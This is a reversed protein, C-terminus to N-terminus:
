RAITHLSLQTQLNAVMQRMMTEDNTDVRVGDFLRRQDLDLVLETRGPAALELPADLPVEVVLAEGALAFERAVGMPALVGAFAFAEREEPVEIRVRLACYEGPPPMLLGLEYPMVDHLLDVRADTDSGTDAHAHAAARLLERVEGLALPEAECRVLELGAISLEARQLQVWDGADTEFRWTARAAELTVGVEIGGSYAICNPLFAGLALLALAVRLPESTM